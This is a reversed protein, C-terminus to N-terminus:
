SKMYGQNLFFERGGPIQQITSLEEPAFWRIQEFEETQLPIAVDDANQTLRVEFRNFTMDYIVKEGGALTKMSEGSGINDIPILQSPSLELGTEERAERIAAEELTEGSEVGGGPIHWFDVYSGGKDAYKKGLLFKGDASIIVLSAIERSVHKTEPEVSGNNNDSNKM